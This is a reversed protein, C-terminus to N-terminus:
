IEIVKGCELLRNHTVMIFQIGMETSLETLLQSVRKSYDVSLHKFPEDLVILKRLPPKSLILCALRLAFAAVDVVGGGSATLPDMEIGDRVFLLTAQTRGYKLEFEIKFDYPEDFIARLCRSVVYAIKSHATEQIAQSVIQLLERAHETDQHTEKTKIAEDVALEYSQEATKYHINLENLRTKYQAIMEKGILHLLVAASELTLHVTISETLERVIIWPRFPVGVSGM